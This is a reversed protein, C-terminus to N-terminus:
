GFSRFGSETADSIVAEWTTDRDCMPCRKPPERSVVGYGCQSCSFERRPALAAVTTSGLGNWGAAQREAWALLSEFDLKDFVALGLGAAREKLGDPDSSHVAVRTSPCDRRLLLATEVGDLRPMNFDLIAIRCRRRRAILVAEHGDSADVLSSIGAVERLLAVYLSRVAEDDDAVLVRVGTVAEERSGDGVSQEGLWV